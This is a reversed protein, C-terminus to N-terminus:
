NLVNDYTANATIKLAGHTSRDASDDSSCSTLVLALSLALAGFNMKKM